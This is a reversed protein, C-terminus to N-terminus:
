GLISIKVVYACWLRFGVSVCFAYQPFTLNRWDESGLASRWSCWHGIIQWWLGQRLVCDARIDFEVLRGVRVCFTMQAFTSNRQDDSLLATRWRCSPRAVGTKLCARLVVVARFDSLRGGSVRACFAYQM